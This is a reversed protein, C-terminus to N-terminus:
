FSPEDQGDSHEEMARVHADWGADFGADWGKDWGANYWGRKEGAEEGVKYGDRWARSEGATDDFEGRLRFGDRLGRDYDSPEKAEGPNVPGGEHDAM